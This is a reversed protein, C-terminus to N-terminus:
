RPNKNQLVQDAPKQRQVRRAPAFPGIGRALLYCATLTSRPVLHECGRKLFALTIPILLLGAFGIGIVTTQYSRFSEISICCTLMTGLFLLAYIVPAFLSGAEAILTKREYASRFNGKSRWMERCFFEPLTKSEGMHLVASRNNRRLEGHLALRYSLDSDECTVLSEDFGELRVFDTRDILLNFAPLWDVRDSTTTLRPTIHSVWAREVWGASDLAPAQPGAVAIVGDHKLENLCHEVWDTPLICDADLFALFKGTSADVGRNRARGANGAPVNILTAGCDVAIDSTADTSENDVVVIEVSLEEDHDLEQAHISDICQRLFIEENRAPIIFSISVNTKQKARNRGTIVSM